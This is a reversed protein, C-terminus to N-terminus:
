AAQAEQQRDFDAWAWADGAATAYEYGQVADIYDRLAPSIRFWDAHSRDAAFRDLLRAKVWGTGPREAILRLPVPSCAQLRKLEQDPNVSVGIRVLCLDVAEVFFVRAPTNRSLSV